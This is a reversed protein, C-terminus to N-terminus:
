DLFFNWHCRLYIGPQPDNYEVGEYVFDPFFGQLGLEFIFSQNRRDEKFTEMAWGLSVFSTKFDGFLQNARLAVGHARVKNRKRKEKLFRNGFHTYGLGGMFGYKLAQVEELDSNYILVGGSYIGAELVNKPSLYIRAPIGFGSLISIGISVKGGYDDYDSAYMLPIRAPTKQFKLPSPASASTYFDQASATTVLITSILSFLAITKKM